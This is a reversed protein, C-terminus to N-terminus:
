PKQGRRHPSRRADGIEEGAGAVGDGIGRRDRRSVAHSEEIEVGPLDFSERLNNVLYRKYQEPMSEARSAMLVFTPPRAKTQAMYKPKIRKGDVAPPPHRQTAM